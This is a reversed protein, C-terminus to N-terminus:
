SSRLADIPDVESARRAPILAAALGILLFAMGVETLIVPDYPSLEFLVSRALRGALLAVPIGLVLGAGVMWAAEGFVLRSIAARSAGLATRIGLEPIRRQVDQALRAFLGVFALLLVFGGFCVSIRAMTREQTMTQGITDDLTSAGATYERHAAAITRELPRLILAPDISTRALLIPQRLLAPEQGFPRFAAPMPDTRIDGVRLDATVGIITLSARQPENGIRIRRGLADGTPFMRRALGRTVIVVAETSPTDGVVFDRGELLAMGVTNFLGPTVTELDIPLGNAADPEEVRSAVDKSVIPSPFTHSLAVSQVGPLAAVRDLLSKYYVPADMGAYGNTVPLTRALAVHDTRFGLDVRELNLLSRSLLAAGFAIAISLSVQGILLSRNWRSGRPAVSRTGLSGSSRSAVLGPTLGTALAAVAVMGAALGLVRGSPTLVLAPPGFSTWVLAIVARVLWITIPVTLLAATALSLTTEVLVQQLMRRGTAGLALRVAFEERRASADGVLLGSVNACAVLFLLMAVGALLLLPTGFRPRMTSLGTTLSTIELRNRRANEIESKSFAAPMTDDRVAPWIADIERQSAELTVGPKLRGVIYNAILGRRPDVAPIRNYNIPVIIDSSFETRVGKFGPEAVGVVTHPAGEILLTRGLVTPDSAFTTRWYDYGLVVVASVGRSPDDEPGILRGLFPRIGLLPACAPTMLSVDNLTSEGNREVRYVGGASFGCVSQFSSQRAALASVAALPINSHTTLDRTLRMSVLESPNHIVPLPRLILADVLVDMSLLTGMALATITASVAFLGPRRRVRRFGNRLDDRLSEVM